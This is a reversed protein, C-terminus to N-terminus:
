WATRTPLLIPRASGSRRARRTTTTSRSRAGAGTPAPRLGHGGVMVLRDDEVVMLTATAARIAGAVHTVAAAVIGDMDEAAGLESTVRALQGLAEGGAPVAFGARDPAGSTGTM